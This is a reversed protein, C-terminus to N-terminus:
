ELSSMSSPLAMDSEGPCYILKLKLADGFFFM